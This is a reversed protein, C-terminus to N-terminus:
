RAPASALEKRLQAKNVKDINTLPLEDRIEVREPWKFKAVNLGDLYEALDAVTPPEQGEAVVVVACAREGLREDPIAVLAISDVAPHKVLLGEVEAANVKEGGRNIVDKIRDALIYYPTGEHDIEIVVDGTRYFGDSTFAEANREPSKFYGRITYPGRTCFEGPEGVPVPEETGPEYVRIEDLESITTGVARHRIEQPADRPTVLCLGEGMGFMQLIRCTDTEFFDIVEDTLAGLVWIAHTLTKLAEQVEPDALILKAIPPPIMM